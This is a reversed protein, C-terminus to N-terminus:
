AKSGKPSAPTVRKSRGAIQLPQLRPPGIRAAAPSDKNPGFHKAITWLTDFHFIFSREVGPDDSRVRFICGDRSRSARAVTCIYVDKDVAITIQTPFDDYTRIEYDAISDLQKELMADVRVLGTEMEKRFEAPQLGLQTARYAAFVSQPDLTLVRVSVGARLGQLLKKKEFWKLNTVLLRIQNEAGRLVSRLDAVDRDRYCDVRYIPRCKTVARFALLRLRSTLEVKLEKPDQRPHVHSTNCLGRLGPWEPEGVVLIERDKAEAYGAVVALASAGKRSESSEPVVVLFAWSDDKLAREATTRVIHVSVGSRDLQANAEAAVQPLLHATGDDCIAIGKVQVMHTAPM